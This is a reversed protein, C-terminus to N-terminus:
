RSISSERTRHNHQNLRQLSGRGAVGGGGGHDDQPIKEALTENALVEMFDRNRM